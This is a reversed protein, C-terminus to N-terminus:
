AVLNIWGEAKGWFGLCIIGLTILWHGLSIRTFFPRFKCMKKWLERNHTELAYIIICKCVYKSSEFDASAVGRPPEVGGGPM